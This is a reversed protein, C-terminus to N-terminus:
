VVVATHLARYILGSVMFGGGGGGLIINGENRVLDINVKIVITKRLKAGTTNIKSRQM